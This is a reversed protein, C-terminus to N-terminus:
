VTKAQKEYALVNDRLVGLRWKVKAVFDHGCACLEM